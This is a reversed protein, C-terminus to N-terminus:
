LTRCRDLIAILRYGSLYVNIIQFWFFLRSCIDIKIAIQLATEFCVEVCVEAQSFTPAAINKSVILISPAIM